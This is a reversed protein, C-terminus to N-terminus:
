KLAHLGSQKRESNLKLFAQPEQKIFKVLQSMSVGRAEVVPHLDWQVRHLDDMLEALLPAYDTHDTNVALQGRMVRKQWLESPQSLITVSEDTVPTRYQIALIMRLRKIAVQKNELQSRREAAQAQFLQPEPATQKENGATHPVVPAPITCRIVIGTEVKNRHQGGPGSRKVREIACLSLLDEESWSAPHTLNHHSAHPNM